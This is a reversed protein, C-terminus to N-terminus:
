KKYKELIKLKQVADRYKIYNGSKLANDRAVGLRWLLADEELSTDFGIMKLVAIREEVSEIPYVKSKDFKSSISGEYVRHYYIAKNEYAIKNALLYIKWTTFDDETTKAAPYTINTFLSRKYLKDWPVVFVLSLNFFASDYELKFWDKISYCKEFYQKENIWYTFVNGKQKYEEFNGVAIDADNKKLLKYLEEIHNSAIWDDGDVFLVYDGTAMSLGANRSSGIGENQKHLIRIRDDKDKYHECIEATGDTSGDDILIIELNKYTQNIVSNLCKELYKEDNYVPIIVSVKEM